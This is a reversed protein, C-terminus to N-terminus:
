TTTVVRDKVITRPGLPPLLMNSISLSLMQSVEVLPLAIPSSILLKSPVAAIAISSLAITLIARSQRSCATQITTCMDYILGTGGSRSSSKM